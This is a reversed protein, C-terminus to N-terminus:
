SGRGGAAAAGAHQPGSPGDPRDERDANGPGHEHVSIDERSFLAMVALAVQEVGRPARGDGAQEGDAGAGAPPATDQAREPAPQLGPIAGAVSGTLEARTKMVLGWASANFKPLEGRAGAMGIREWELLGQRAAAELASRPFDRPFREMHDRVTAADADAFSLVSHGEALHACLRACVARRARASPWPSRAGSVSKVM